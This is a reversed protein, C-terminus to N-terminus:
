RALWRRLALLLLALSCGSCRATNATAGARARLQVRREVHPARAEASVRRLRRRVQETLFAEETRIAATITSRWTSRVVLVAVVISRCGVALGLAMISSGLYLPHRTFRYPGPRAHSRPEERSARGGLHAASRRCRRRRRRDGALTRRPRAFGSCSLARLRLRAARPAPRASADAVASMAQAVRAAALAARRGRAAGRGRRHRRPVADRAPLAARPPVRVRRVAVRTVDDVRGRGTAARSRDARLPRRDAHRRRRRHAASRHRGLGGAVRARSCRWCIPWRRRAARARAAGGSADVVAGGAGGRGAGVARGVAPRARRARIAAAVRRVAGAALAQEALGRRSQDPRVARDGGLAARARRAGAVRRRSRFDSRTPEVGVRACCRAPEQPHRAGGSGPDVRTETYFPRAMQERLTGSRSGSSARAGGSARALVASKLLGQFDIRSTTARARAAPAVVDTWRRGAVAARARRRSRRADVLDLVPATSRAGGALRNARRSRPRAAGGGGAPRPRHRRARRAPRDLM